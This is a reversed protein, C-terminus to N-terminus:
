SDPMEECLDHCNCKIEGCVCRELKDACDTCAVCEYLENYICCERCGVACGAKDDFHVGRKCFHCIEEFGTDGARCMLCDKRMCAIEDAIEQPMNELPEDSDILNQMQQARQSEPDGAVRNGHRMHYRHPRNWICFDCETGYLERLEERSMGFQEVGFKVENRPPGYYAM